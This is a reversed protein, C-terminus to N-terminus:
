PSQRATVDPDAKRRGQQEPIQDAQEDLTEDDIVPDTAADIWVM